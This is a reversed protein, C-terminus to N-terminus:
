EELAQSLVSVSIGLADAVEARTSGLALMNRARQTRAPSLGKSERPMARQKLSDMDTNVLIKSLASPSIAGAQIARWERDTIEVTAKKAGVRIRAEELAQGKIKKLTAEDMEPNDRRKMAVIKNAFLQAQRELPKNKFADKLKASLSKVETDYAKRASPSYPIDSTRVLTRRAKNAIDKLRNAYSAYVGEIMTGSSLNFADDVEAMRTTKTQRKVTQGKKNVYTEGTTEFLLKGSKPDIYVRKSKGTKTDTVFMGEKRHDVRITSSAKSILTAAGSQAGGQYKKKLDAIGNDIYSQKYNLKHKEADIVVMSHRVARAIEDHSAGKITMDTILNSVKGMEMQKTRNSMVKMGEYGKYMVTPEFNKLGELSPATRLLKNKNPIVIVTDGDFDAGSLKAAVRANIGVADKANKGILKVADPNRNNVRLSPAEFIGGHPHRFLVVEEGDRFNPAFVENDKLSNIPLLVQTAQRPLAAAKLHVAAADAEDSFTKLLQKKVSPNTLAMIEDFEEQKLDFALDLQKKALQPTQKSLIQSSLNRSWGEWSGEEGAGHVSGVMNLASLHENGFEDIYHKQRITTGFPNDPDDKYSKFVDDDSTGRPKNTNYIMDVGPPFKDGYMAMGKMFRDGEVGVRVQAYHNDGLSIDDVGPRLEIVGDKLKGGEDGYRVMVRDRGVMVPTEIGLFTRGGDETYHDLVQINDRNKSIDAFTTGPPALVKVNTYKDTGLQKVKITHVEYGEEQLLAVANGLKTRSVGMHIETGVGIDLYKGDKMGTKLANATNVTMMKRDHIAPDLLSRVSSENPLGMRQAIAPNSYGKEKLRIAMARDASRKEIGALHYKARLQTTTMGMGKAIDTESQGQRKLDNVAGLFSAASQYPDKGSGWPYRGSKRPTGYHKIVGNRVTVM